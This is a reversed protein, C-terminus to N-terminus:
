TINKEGWAFRFFSSTIVCFSLYQLEIQRNNTRKIEIKYAIKRMILAINYFMEKHLVISVSPDKYNIVFKLFNPLEGFKM